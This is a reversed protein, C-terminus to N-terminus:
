GWTVRRGPYVGRDRVIVAADGGGRECDYPLAYVDWSAEGATTRPLWHGKQGCTRGEQGDLSMAKELGMWGERHLGRVLLAGEAKVRPLHRGLVGQVEGQDLGRADVIVLSASGFDYPLPEEAAWSLMGRHAARQRLAENEQCLAGLFEVNGLLLNGSADTELSFTCLVAQLACWLELPSGDTRENVQVITKPALVRAVEAALLADAAASCGCESIVRGHVALMEESGNVGLLSEQPERQKCPPGPLQTEPHQVRVMSSATLSGSTGEIGLGDTALVVEIMMEEQHFSPQGDELKPVLHEIGLVSEWRATSQIWELPPMDLRALVM